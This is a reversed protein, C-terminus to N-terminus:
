AKRYGYVTITGGTLTGSTKGITFGTASSTSAIRSTQTVGILDSVASLTGYKYASLYPSSIELTNFCGGTTTGTGFSAYTTVSAYGNVTSVGILQYFGQNSYVSGTIGTLQFTWDANNSAVTGAVVVRYNDYTSSFCNSVTASSVGSGITTSTVYVLGSNALYANTDASTLVETTFTKVTM